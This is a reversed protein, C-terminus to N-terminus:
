CMIDQWDGNIYQYNTNKFPMGKPIRLSQKRIRKRKRKDQKSRGM